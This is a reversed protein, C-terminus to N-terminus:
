WLRSKGDNDNGDGDDDNEDHHGDDDISSSFPSWQSHPHPAESKIVPKLRKHCQPTLVLKTTVSLVLVLCKDM